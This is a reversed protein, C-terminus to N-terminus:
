LPITIMNLFSFTEGYTSTASGWLSGAGIALAIIGNKQFEM